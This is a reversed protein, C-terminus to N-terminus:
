KKIELSSNLKNKVFEIHRKLLSEAFDLQNEPGWIEIIKKNNEWWIYDVNAMETIRKFHKGDEGIVHPIIEEEIKLSSQRYHKGEPPDRVAKEKKIEM